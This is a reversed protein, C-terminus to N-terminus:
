SSQALVVEDKAVDAVLNKLFFAPLEDAPMPKGYLFGQLQDCALSSLLEAQKETEIGEATVKMDLRHGLMIISDLIERTKASEHDLGLIFSRDIKIKNFGFQWLYGLSSYGTGFDDMAISAGLSQLEKLQKGVEEQNEVLLSETVELELRNASLGTDSLLERIQSVLRGDDFQRPSLNVSIFLHEPWDAAVKTATELVWAGIQKIAGIREAVPIFETPSISEGMADELRLLAEFGVCQMTSQKLLPQYHVSFRGHVLGENVAAEVVRRREFQTELEETFIRYTDRGDHKAQKLALDAKRLRKELPLGPSKDYHIGMSIHGVISEGNRLMPQAVAASLTEAFERVDEYNKRQLMIAFEDGAIRGAVEDRDGIVENVVEGVHRLFADGARHGYTDNIVKLRDVDICVIIAKEWDVDGYAMMKEIKSVFGRRNMVNTVQDYNMLYDARKKASRVRHTMFSFAFASLGLGIAFILSVGMAMNRTAQQFLLTTATQDSYIEIVGHVVGLEDFIPVYTETFVDPRNQKDRGDNLSVSTEGSLIANAAEGSHDWHGSNEIETFLEDSVVKVRAFDDFLKFRFADGGGLTQKIHQRQKPTPVGTAVLGYLDPMTTVFQKAWIKAKREADMAVAYNATDTIMWNISFSAAGVLGIIIFGFLLRRLM